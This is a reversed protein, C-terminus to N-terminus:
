SGPKKLDEQMFEEVRRNWGKGYRKKFASIVSPLVSLPTQVRKETGLEEAKKRGQGRGAGGHTNNNSM